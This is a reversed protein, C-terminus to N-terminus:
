RGTTFILNAFVALWEPLVWLGVPTTVYYIVCVNTSALTLKWPARALVDHSNMSAKWTDPCCREAALQCLSAENGEGWFEGPWSSM